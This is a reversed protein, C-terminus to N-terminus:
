YTEILQVFFILNSIVTFYNGSYKRFIILMKTENYNWFNIICFFRFLSIFTCYLLYTNSKVTDSYYKM